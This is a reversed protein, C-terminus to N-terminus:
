HMDTSRQRRELIFRHIATNDIADPLVRVADAWLAACLELQPTEIGSHHQLSSAIALDKAQLSLAFGGEYHRPLIFPKLKTETAVNRGSSVNLVDAFIATDLEMAEAIAVAETAALLGAAYVYNNLAKMTHAAGPKGAAIIQRGMRALIPRLEEVTTEDGGVIISLEGAHAKAAAGSVPADILRIGREALIPILRMTETPDSSGMDVITSGRPLSHALGISGDAGLIVRNTIKSNPLMTIVFACRGFPELTTAQFLTRGFAPEKKLTEFPANSIDFAHITLHQDRSLNALMPLGMVGLGIFGIPNHM